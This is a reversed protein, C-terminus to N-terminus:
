RRIAETLTDYLRRLRERGRELLKNALLTLEELISPPTIKEGRVALLVTIREESRIVFYYGCSAGRYGSYKFGAEVATAVLYEAEEHGPAYGAIFPPEAEMWMYGNCEVSEVIDRLTSAEVPEHSSYLIKAGRPGKAWLSPGCKLAVRGACSSTTVYGTSWLVALLPVVWPDVGGAELDRHLRWLHRRRLEEWCGLGWVM